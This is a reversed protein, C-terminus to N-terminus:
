LKILSYREKNLIDIMIEYATKGSLISEFIVPSSGSVLQVGNEFAPFQKHRADVNWFVLEPIKFDEALYKKEIEEFLTNNINKSSAKDFEMDSIIIIKKVMDNQPIKNNIATNLIVDFVAEINTNMDWYANRLNNVKNIINNGEIKQLEPRKSFTIFYDKFVGKCREGLYIGLSVSMSLPDGNM